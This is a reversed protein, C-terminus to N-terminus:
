QKIPEGLYQLKVGGVPIKLYIEPSSLLVSLVVNVPIMNANVQNIVMRGDPLFTVPGSLKMTIPYSHQNHSGGAVIHMYPADLYLDVNARFEPGNDTQVIWGPILGQREIEDYVYSGDPNQKGCYNDADDPWPM